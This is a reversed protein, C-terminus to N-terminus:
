LLSESTYFRLQPRFRPIFVFSDELRTVIVVPIASSSFLSISRDERKQTQLSISRVAFDLVLKSFRNFRAPASTKSNGIYPPDDESVNQPRSM